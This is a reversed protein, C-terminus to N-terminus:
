DEKRFTFSWRIRYESSCTRRWSGLAQLYFYDWIVPRVSFNALECAWDIKAAHNLSEDPKGTSQEKLLNAENREQEELIRKIDEVQESNLESHPGPNGGVDLLAEPITQIQEFYHRLFLLHQIMSCMNTQNDHSANFHWTNKKALGQYCPM